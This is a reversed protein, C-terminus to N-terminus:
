VVGPLYNIEARQPVESALDYPALVVPSLTMVPCLAYALVKYVVGSNSLAAFHTADHAGIVILNAELVRGLYLLEETPDGLVVTARLNLKARTSAPILERLKGEIQDLPHRALAEECEQPPIVYQLVLRAGHNVALEAAFRAVTESSRHSSVSCLITRTLFDRYTGSRPYPGVLTVPVHAKRLLTEAVSGVLRKGIPGPTHVGMVVRDAQEERLFRLIEDTAVGKRFEVRCDIGLSKAHQLMSELQKKKDLSVEQGCGAQSRVRAMEDCIHLLVLKAESEKAQALAFTFAKEDAPCEAAFLITSPRSWETALQVM